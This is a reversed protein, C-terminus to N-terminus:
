AALLPREAGVRTLYAPHPSRLFAVVADANRACPLLTKWGSLHDLRHFDGTAVAPLGARSVWGFLTTRNFLEFRDALGRLATDTAFARTLREPQEKRARRRLSQAAIIAAGSARAHEM